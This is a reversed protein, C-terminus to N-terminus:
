AIVHNFGVCALLMRKVLDLLLVPRKQSRGLAQSVWLEVATFNLTKM